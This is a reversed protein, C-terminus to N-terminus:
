ELHKLYLGAIDSWQHQKAWIKSGFQFKEKDDMITRIATIFEESSNPDILIGSSGVQIADEIGCYKSGIAPVGLANAELIAIGFGEIDGAETNSSLMVFLDTQLLIHQLKTDNLRGHFTIYSEVKLDKALRSFKNAETKLGICHYHVEPFQDILKPLHKIVNQQGKRLTLNGVTTLVPNGKLNILESNLGNKWKFSDFGNPIVVVPRSIHSILSKTYNSVAIIVKFRSLSYNILIRAFHKKFNVESGHVVAIYNRKHFLSCAAVSWLSFKGSAIVQRSSAILNYTSFIRKFYMLCRPSTIRTREVTFPLTSDFLEEEKGDISRNDAIVNVEYGSKSLQFALNYAHNGIGGPQPPFESTVIAINSNEQKL